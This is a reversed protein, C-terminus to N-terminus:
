VRPVFCEMFGLFVEVRLFKFSFVGLLGLFLYVGSFGWIAM